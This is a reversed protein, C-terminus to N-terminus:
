SKRNRRTKRPVEIPDATILLQGNDNISVNLRLGLAYIVAALTRIGPNFQEGRVLINIWSQAVGLKRAVQTQTSGRAALMLSLAAQVDAAATDAAQKADAPWTEGHKARGAM